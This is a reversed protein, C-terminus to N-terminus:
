ETSKMTRSICGTDLGLDRVGMMKPRGNRTVALAIIFQLFQDILNVKPSM